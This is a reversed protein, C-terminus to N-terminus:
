KIIEFYKNFTRKDLEIIFQFKRKNLYKEKLKDEAKFYKRDYIDRLKRMDQQLKINEKKTLSMNILKNFYEYNQISIM